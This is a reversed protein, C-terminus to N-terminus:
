PLAMIVLRGSLRQTTTKAEPYLLEEGPSARPRMYTTSAMVPTFSSSYMVLVVLSSSRLPMPRAAFRDGLLRCSLVVCYTYAPSRRPASHRNSIEAFEPAVAPYGEVPATFRPRVLSSGPTWGM